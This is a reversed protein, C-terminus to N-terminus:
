GSREDSSYDKTSASNIDLDITYKLCHIIEFFESELEKILFRQTDKDLKDFRRLIPIVEKKLYTIHDKIDSEIQPIVETIDDIQTFDM